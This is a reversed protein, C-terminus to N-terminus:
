RSGPLGIMMTAFFYVFIKIKKTPSSFYKKPPLLFIKKKTIYTVAEMFDECNDSTFRRGDYVAPRPRPPESPGTSGM